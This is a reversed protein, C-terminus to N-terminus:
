QQKDQNSYKTAWHVTNFTIQGSYNLLMLFYLFNRSYSIPNIMTSNSIDDSSFKNLDQILLLKMGYGFSHTSEHRYSGVQPKILLSSFCAYFQSFMGKFVKVLIERKLNASSQIQKHKWYFGGHKSHKSLSERVLLLLVPTAGPNAFTSGHPFHALAGSGLVPLTPLHGVTAPPHFPPLSAGPISQHM